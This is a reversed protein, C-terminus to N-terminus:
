LRTKIHNNGGNGGNRIGGNGIRSSKPFSQAKYFLFTSCNLDSEVCVLHSKWVNTIIFLIARGLGTSYPLCVLEKIKINCEQLM